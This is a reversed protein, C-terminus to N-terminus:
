PATDPGLSALALSAAAAASSRKSNGPAPGFRQGDALVSTHFVRAHPPGAIEDVTYVPRAKGKGELLEQLRSRADVSAARELARVRDAFLPRVFARAADLGGDLWVAAVVAEADGGAFTKELQETRLISV